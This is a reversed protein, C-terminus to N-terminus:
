FNISSMSWIAKSQKLTARYMNEFILAKNASSKVGRAPSKLKTLPKKAPMTEVGGVVAIAHTKGLLMIATNLAMGYKETSSYAQPAPIETSKMM